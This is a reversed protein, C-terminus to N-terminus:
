VYEVALFTDYFGVPRAADHGFVADVTEFSVRKLIQPLQLGFLHEGGCPQNVRLRQWLVCGVRRRCGVRPIHQKNVGKPM